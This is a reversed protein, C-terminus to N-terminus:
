KLLENVIEIDDRTMADANERRYCRRCEACKRGGCNIVVDGAHAKDYVTFVKDVFDDIVAFKQELVNVNIFPSSLIIIMNAPKVAGAALAGRIYQPNKTWLTFTCHPNAAAIAMYNAAHTENILDGFAEFRFFACNIFPVDDATLAISSLLETNAELKAALSKYRSTMADAYCKACIMSADVTEGNELEVAVPEGHAARAACLPNCKVSTSLSWFGAMKGSHNKCIAADIRARIEEHSMINYM